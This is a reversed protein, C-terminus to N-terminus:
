LCNLQSVGPNTTIIRPFTTERQELMYQQKNEEIKFYCRLKYIMYNFNYGKGALYNYYFTSARGKLMISYTNYYYDPELGVKQCYNYFIRLKLNLINYLEGSYKKEQDLYLKTLETLM